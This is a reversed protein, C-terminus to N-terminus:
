ILLRRAASWMSKISASSTAARKLLAAHITARPAMASAAKRRCSEVHSVHHRKIMAYKIRHGWRVAVSSRANNQTSTPRVRAPTALPTWRPAAASTTPPRMSFGAKPGACPTRGESSNKALSPSAAKSSAGPVTRRTRPPRGDGRRAGDKGVHAEPVEAVLAHDHGAVVRLLELCSTVRIERGPQSTDPPPVPDQAGAQHAGLSHVRRNALELRRDVGVVVAPDLVRRRAVVHAGVVPARVVEREEGPSSGATPSILYCRRESSPRGPQSPRRSASGGSSHWRYRNCAFGCCISM